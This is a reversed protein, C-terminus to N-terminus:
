ESYRRSPNLQRRLRGRHRAQNLGRRERELRGGPRVHLRWVGARGCGKRRRCSWGRKRVGAGAGIERASRRRNENSERTGM